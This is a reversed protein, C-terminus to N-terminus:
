IVESDHFDVQVKGTSVPSPASLVPPLNGQKLQSMSSRSMSYVGRLDDCALQVGHESVSVSLLSGSVTSLLNSFTEIGVSFSSSLGSKEVTGVKFNVRDSVAMHVNVGESSFVLEGASFLSSLKLARKVLPVDLRFEGINNGTLFTDPYLFSDEDYPVRLFSVFGLDFKFFLRDKSFAFQTSDEMIEKLTSLDLRRLIIKEKSAWEHGVCVRYKYLTYFAETYKYDILVKSDSLKVAFGYLNKLVGVESKSLPFKIWDTSPSGCDLRVDDLSLKVTDLKYRVYPSEYFITDDLDFSLAFQNYSNVFALLKVTDLFYVKSTEHPNSNQLPLVADICADRNNAHFCISHRSKWVAMFVTMKSPFSFVVRLIKKLEDRSVSWHPNKCEFLVEPVDPLSSDSGGSFISELDLDSVQNTEVTNDM